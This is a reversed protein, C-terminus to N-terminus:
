EKRRVAAVPEGAIQGLLDGRKSCAILSREACEHRRCLHAVAAQRRLLVQTKGEVVQKFRHETFALPRRSRIGPHLTRLANLELSLPGGFTQSSRSLATEASRVQSVQIMISTM